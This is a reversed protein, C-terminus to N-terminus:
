KVARIIKFGDAEAVAQVERFGKAFLAEYPLHKNAVCWLQGGTKLMEGARTIFAQGLSKDEVGADHFPPNMVIFDLNTAPLEVRVDLWHFKARADAINRTAVAIARADVDVCHLETVGPSKLVASSLLGAGCGLDAGSGSLAPVHKLLLASGDDVRDWSFIGPQTWAGDLERPGGEAIADEISKLVDPRTVTVIRHHARSEDNVTCGFSELEAALRSGGKDKPALAMLTAGPSLARLALALTYRREITGPPAYIIANAASEADVDELRASHPVLPSCQRAAAPISALGAPPQGYILHLPDSM